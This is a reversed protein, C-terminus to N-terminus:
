LNRKSTIKNVSYFSHRVVDFTDMEALNQTLNRSRNYWVGIKQKATAETSKPDAFMTRPM